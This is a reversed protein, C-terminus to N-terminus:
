MAEDDEDPKSRKKSFVEKLDTFQATMQQQTQQVSAALIKDFHKQVDRLGQEMQSMNQQQQKECLKFQNAVTAKHEAHDQTLQEVSAQLKSIRDAQDEFQAQVPGPLQRSQASAAASAAPQAVPHKWKSWPDEGKQWPDVTTPTSQKLKPGWMVPATQQARPPLLRVLVPASNFRIIGQPPRDKSRVLWTTPGLSRFPQFAWSLSKGWERM